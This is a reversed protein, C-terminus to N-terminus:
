GAFGGYRGQSFVLPAGESLTVRLVRGVLIAHDGGDHMAHAACDFRALAPLTPQGEAGEGPELGLFGDGTRAFRAVLDAQDAALVHIAYFPAAAFIGFRRAARAPSWLVLPPDLSVSAFSNATFGVPGEPGQTTVLCVGTAFRGFADRLARPDTPAFSATPQTGDPM